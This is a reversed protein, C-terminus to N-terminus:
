TQPHIHPLLKALLALDVRGPREKGLPMIGAEGCPIALGAHEQTRDAPSGSEMTGAFSIEMYSLIEVEEVEAAHIKLANFGLHPITRKRFCAPGPMQVLTGAGYILDAAHTRM